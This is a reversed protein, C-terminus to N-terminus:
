SVASKVLVTTLPVPPGLALVEPMPKAAISILAVPAHNSFVKISSEVVM